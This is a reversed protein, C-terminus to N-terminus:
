GERVRHQAISRRRAFQVANRWDKFTALVGTGDTSGPEHIYFKGDDPNYSAPHGHVIGQNVCILGNPHRKKYYNIKIM